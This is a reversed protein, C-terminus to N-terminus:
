VLRLVEDSRLATWGRVDNIAFRDNRIYVQSDFVIVKHQSELLGSPIRVVSKHEPSELDVGSIYATPPIGKAKM